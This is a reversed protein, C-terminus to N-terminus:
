EGIRKLVKWTRNRGPLETWAYGAPPPQAEDFGFLIYTPRQALLYPLDTKEHGPAHAGAAGAPAERRAIHPDTVGWYDIVRLGSFYAIQGIPGALVSDGPRAVAALDRALEIRELDAPAWVKVFREFEGRPGYTGLAVLSIPVVFALSVAASARRAIEPRDPAQAARADALERALDQILLYAIPLAVYFFRSGPFYDGGIWVVYAAFAVLSATLLRRRLAAESGASAPRLRLFAPTLALLPVFYRERLAAVLYAAGDLARGVWGGAGPAHLYFTNPLVASYYALKWACWLGVPILFGLTLGALERSRPVPIGGAEARKPEPRPALALVAVAVAWFLGSDPRAMTAAAFALGAFWRARRDRDPLLLLLAALVWATQFANELGSVSWYHFSGDAALLLPAILNAFRHRRGAAQWGLAYTLALVAISWAAGWAIALHAAAVGPLLKMWLALFLLWLFNTYGEVRKSPAAPDFVLGEGAVLNRAYTFSIYADDNTQWGFARANGLEAALTGACALALVLLVAAARSSDERM